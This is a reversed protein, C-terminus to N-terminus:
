RGHLGGRSRRHHGGRHHAGAAPELQRLCRGAPEPQLLHRRAPGQHRLVHHRRDPRDPEAPGRVGARQREAVPQRQHRRQGLVAGAPEDDAPDLHDPESCRQGDPDVVCRGPRQLHGPHLRQGPVRSGRGGRLRGPQRGGDPDPSGFVAGLDGQDHGTDTSNLNNFANIASQNTNVVLSSMRKRRPHVREMRPATHTAGGGPESWSWRSSVSDEVVAPSWKLPIVRSKRQWRRGIRCGSGPPGSSEEVDRRSAIGISQAMRREGAVM